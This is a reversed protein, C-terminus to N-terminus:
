MRYNTKVEFEDLSIELNECHDSGNTILIHHSKLWSDLVNYGSFVRTQIYKFFTYSLIRRYSRPM